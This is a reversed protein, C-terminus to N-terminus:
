EATVECSQPYDKGSEHRVTSYIKLYEIIARREDPSLEPGILGNAPPAEKSWKRYGGRFEHGSNKNGPISTDLWFGKDSAPSAILGIKVSDFDMRNRVFFKKPREDAPSLLDYLTPVSGNHLYPATAWVGDLPRAKYQLKVVPADLSGEGDLTMKAIIGDEPRVHEFVGMQQYAKDIIFLDLYHLAAGISAHRVDIGALGRQIFQEREGPDTVTKPYRGRFDEWAKRMRNYQETLVPRQKEIIDPESIASSSLNINREAFNVAAQPDTGIEAVPIANIKWLMQSPDKEAALLPREVAVQPPTALCPEHCHSCHVAFLKQGNAAVDRRVPGLIDEPWKPARLTTITEELEALNKVLTGSIFEQEKPLPRGYDDVLGLTAGVGFSEGVNRAMPQTVSAGYQVFDWHHADWIAPYSVPANGPAFNVADLNTGFARNAIRGIADTRGFGEEVPYRRHVIDDGVQQLLSATVAALDRYLKPAAAPYRPGLVAMAFRRFKLPHILTSTTSAVLDTGFQNQATSTFAHMAQGGDIRIGTKKGDKNILLEGTHCAACTIDLVSDKFEPAFHKAFGVPLRDPNLPTAINDVQFGLARMHAPEIFRNRSGNQELNIFWGYRFGTAFISTGQPTYYFKQRYDPDKDNWSVLERGWYRGQELYRIEYPPESDAVQRSPLYDMLVLGAWLVLVAVCATIIVRHLTRNRLVGLVFHATAAATNVVGRWFTRVAAAVATIWVQPDFARRIIFLVRRGLKPL